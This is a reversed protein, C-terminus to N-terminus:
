WLITIFVWKKVTADFTTRTLVSLGAYLVPFSVGDHCGSEASLMNRIRSPVRTSFQSNSLVSAALVPDSPTLCAAIVLSTPVDTHFLLHLFIAVLLWGAIM